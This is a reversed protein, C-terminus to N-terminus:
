ASKRVRTEEDSSRTEAVFSRQAVSLGATEPQIKFRLLMFGYLMFSAGVMELSEEAAVALNYYLESGAPQFEFSLEELGIGGLLFIALGFAVWLAERHFNRWILLVSRYGALLVAVGVLVYPVMWARHNGMFTLRLFWQLDLKKAVEILKEHIAAAEDMSLFFFGIGLVFLYIKLDKAVRAQLILVLGVAFLQMSSFWTPISSERDLDLLSSIPGWKFGPAIIWVICYGIVLLAEASLLFFLLRRADDATYSLDFKANWSM